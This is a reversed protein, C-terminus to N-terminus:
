QLTIHEKYVAYLRPFQACLVEIHNGCQPNGDRCSVGQVCRLPVSDICM